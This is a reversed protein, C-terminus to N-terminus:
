PPHVQQTFPHACGWLDECQVITEATLGCLDGM